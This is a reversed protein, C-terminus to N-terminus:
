GPSSVGPGAVAHAVEIGSAGDSPDGGGAVAEEVLAVEEPADGVGGIAEGAGVDPGGVEVLAVGLFEDGVEEEAEGGEDEDANDEGRSAGGESAEGPTEEDDPHGGVDGHGEEEKAGIVFAPHENMGGQPEEGGSGEGGERRWSGQAPAGGEDGIEGEGVGGGGDARGADFDPIAGAGVDGGGEHSVSVEDEEGAVGPVLVDAKVGAGRMM